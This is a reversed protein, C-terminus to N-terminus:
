MKVSKAFKRILDCDVKDKKFQKKNMYENLVDIVKLLYKASGFNRFYGIKILVEWQRSNIGSASLYLDEFNLFMTNQSMDYLFDALEDNLYKVSGVGKYITDTEKDFFYKAKSKGYTPPEITINHEKVCEIIKTTKELNDIM